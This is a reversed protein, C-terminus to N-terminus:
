GEISHWASRVARTIFGSVNGVECGGAEKKMVKHVLKLAQDHERHSHSLAAWDHLATDDCGRAALM